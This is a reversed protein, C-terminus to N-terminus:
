EAAPTEGELQRPTVFRSLRGGGAALWRWDDLNFEIAALAGSPFKRAIRRIGDADGSGSLDLALAHLGPNHGTIMVQDLEPPLRRLSALLSAASAHYFAPDFICEPRKGGMAKLALELTERTRVSPSCLILGPRIGIGAMHTGMRAAALRGREILPRDFDKLSPNERGAKAHRFLLVTKM